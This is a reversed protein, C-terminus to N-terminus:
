RRRRPRNHLSRCSAVTQGHAGLFCRNAPPPSPKEADRNTYRDVPQERYQIEGPVRVRVVAVSDARKSMETKAADHERAPARRCARAPRRRRDAPRTGDSGGTRQRTPPRAPRDAQQCETAPQEARQRQGLYLRGFRDTTTAYTPATASSGSRSSTPGPSATSPSRMSSSTCRRASSSFGAAVPPPRGIFTYQVATQHPDGGGTNQQAAQGIRQSERIQSGDAIGSGRAWWRDGRRFGDPDFPPDAATTRQATGAVCGPRCPFAPWVRGMSVASWMKRTKSPPSSRASTARVVARTSRGTRPGASRSRGRRDAM